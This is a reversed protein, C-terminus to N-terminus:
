NNYKIELARMKTDRSVKNYIKKLLNGRTGISGTERKKYM